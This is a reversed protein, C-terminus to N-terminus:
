ASKKTASDPLELARRRAPRTPRWQKTQQDSNAVLCTCSSARDPGAPLLEPFSGQLVMEQFMALERLADAHPVRGPPSWSFGDVPRERVLLEGM